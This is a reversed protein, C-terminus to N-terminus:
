TLPVASNATPLDERWERAFWRETRNRGVWGLCGGRHYTKRGSGSIKGLGVSRTTRPRKRRRFTTGRRTPAALPTLGCFEGGSRPVPSPTGPSPSIHIESKQILLVRTKYKYTKFTYYKSPNSRICFKPDGLFSALSRAYRIPLM